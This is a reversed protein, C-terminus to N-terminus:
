LEGEYYGNELLKIGIGNKSGKQIQGKYEIENLENTIIRIWRVCGSKRWSFDM